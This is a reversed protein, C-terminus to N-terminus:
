NKEYRIYCSIHQKIVSSCLSTTQQKTTRHSDGPQRKNPVDEINPTTSFSKVDFMKLLKEKASRVSLM